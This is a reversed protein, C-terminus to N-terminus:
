RSQGTGNADGPWMLESYNRGKKLLLKTDPAAISRRVFGSIHIAQALADSLSINQSEALQRLEELRDETLVLRDPLSVSQTAM